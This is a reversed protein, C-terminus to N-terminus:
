NASCSTTAPSAAIPATLNTLPSLFLSAIPSATVNARNPADATISIPLLKAIHLLETSLNYSNASFPRYYITHFNRRLRQLGYRKAGQECFLLGLLNIALAFMPKVTKTM